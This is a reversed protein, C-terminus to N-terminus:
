YLWLHGPELKILLLSQTLHEGTFKTSNKMLKRKISWMRTVAETHKRCVVESFTKKENTQLVCLPCIDM